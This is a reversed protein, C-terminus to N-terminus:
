KPEVPPLREPEPPQAPGEARTQPAADFSPPALAGPSRPPAPGGPPKKLDEVEQELTEQLESSARKFERVARGLAKGLEPLKAPGFVLLAIVLVLLIEPTGVSGM